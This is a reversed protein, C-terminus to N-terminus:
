LERWNEHQEFAYAARFITAEDFHSGVLMMGVPLGERLGCPLSMAPHHTYNFPMTNPLPALTALASTVLDADAAPLPSAKMPTTPMLLLDYRALAADYRERLRALERAARVVYRYGYRRRMLECAILGARIMPPLEGTHQRWRHQRAVYSEAVPDPRELLVGDHEFMHAMTAQMGASALTSGWAHERISIEEVFAGMQEFREAAARVCASVDDEAGPMAFGERVIAIRMEGVGTDLDEAWPLDMANCQRSDIGDDGALVELLIANDAVTATMPGVHDVNPNMGLIGTYPVLGHTPKLGYIGCFSAPMRISGGQDCGIAMDVDGAAVLAGSGSSSGGASHEPAHPNRVVGSSATHSGGSFCYAECVTKGTITAGADLLRQVITADVDPVYGDLITTGNAMPVGALLVNDKLAVTRGALPGEAAGRLELRTSWAGLPNEEPAPVTWARDAVRPPRMTEITDVFDAADLVGAVLVRYADRQDPAIEINLATAVAQLEDDDFSTNM